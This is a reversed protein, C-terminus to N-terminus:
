FSLGTSRPPATPRRPTPTPGTGFVHHDVLNRHARVWDWVETAPLEFRAHPLPAIVDDRFPLYVTAPVTEALERHLIALALDAPGSGRYGWAFGDPSHVPLHPLPRTRPPDDAARLVELLRRKHALVRAHREPEPHPRGLHALASVEALEDLFTVLELIPLPDPNDAITVSIRGSSPDVSGLYTRM